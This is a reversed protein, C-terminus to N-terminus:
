SSSDSRFGQRRRSQRDDSRDVPQHRRVGDASRVLRRSAAENAATAHGTWTMALKVAAEADLKGFGMERDFVLGSGNFNLAGNSIAGAAESSKATIALISQIDRYGLDPNVELMLAIASSVLPAAFSTGSVYASSQPDSPTAPRDDGTRRRPCIDASQYRPKFLLCVEGQADHAGVAIVYRSNSLNHFNSTTASIRATSISSATAARWWSPPASVTVDTQRRMRSRRRWNLFSATISITPSRQHSGGATTRSMSDSQRRCCTSWNPWTSRSGYRLYSATITADPAAGITGITNHISGAIIGAVETGHQHGLDDPMADLSSLDDRPDYDLGTAYNGSLDLHTYNVGQDILGVLVDKGTAYAWAGEFNASALGGRM